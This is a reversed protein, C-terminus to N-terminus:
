KLNCYFEFSLKPIVNKNIPFVNTLQTMSGTLCYEPNLAVGLFPLKWIRNEKLPPFFFFHTYIM